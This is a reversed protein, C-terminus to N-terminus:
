GGGFTDSHLITESVGTRGPIYVNNLASHKVRVDYTAKVNSKKTKRKTTKTPTDFNYTAKNKTKVSKYRKGDRIKGSLIDTISNAKKTKEVIQKYEQTSTKNKTKSVVKDYRGKEKQSVALEYGKGGNTNIDNLTKGVKKKLAGVNKDIIDKVSSYKRKNVTREEADKIRKRVEKTAKAWDRDAQSKADKHAKEYKKQIEKDKQKRNKFNFGNRLSEDNAERVAKNIAYEHKRNIRNKRKAATKLASKRMKDIYKQEEKDIHKRDKDAVHKNVASTVAKDAKRLSDKIAKKAKNASKGIEKGIAKSGDKAIQGLSHNSAKRLEKERYRVTADGIQKDIKSWHKAKAVIGARRGKEVPTSGKSIFRGSSKQIAADKKYYGARKARAQDLNKRAESISKKYITRNAVRNIAKTVRRVGSNVTKGAQNVVGNVTKGAQNVARNVGPKSKNYFNAFMDYVSRGARRAERYRQKAEESWKGGHHIEDGSYSQDPIYM